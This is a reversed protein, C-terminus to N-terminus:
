ISAYMKAEAITDSIDAAPAGGAKRAREAAEIAIRTSADDKGLAEQRGMVVAEYIPAAERCRHQAEICFALHFMTDLTYPDNHAYAESYGKWCYRYLTEADGFKAQQELCLALNYAADTVWSAEAVPDRLRREYVDRFIAEAEAARDSSQYLEGLKGKISLAEESDQGFKKESAHLSQVLIQQAKTINGRQALFLAFNSALELTESADHGVAEKHQQLANEYAAQAADGRDEAAALVSALMVSARLTDPDSRGLLQQRGQLLERALAEMEFIDGHEELIDLLRETCDLTGRHVPGFVAKCQTRAERMAEEAKQSDGDNMLFLALNFISDLTRPDRNGLKHRRGEAARTYLALAEKRNGTNDEHVALNHVASLTDEHDCGVLAEYGALVRRLLEGTQEPDSGELTSALENCAVLAEKSDPGHTAEILQLTQRGKNAAAQRQAMEQLQNQFHAMNGGGPLSTDRMPTHMGSPTAWGSSERSNRRSTRRSNRLSSAGSSKWASRARMPTGGRESFPVKMNSNGGRNPTCSGSGDVSPLGSSMEFNSVADFSGQLPKSPTGMSMHQPSALRINELEAEESRKRQALRIKEAEMETLTLRLGNVESQASRLAHQLRASEMKAAEVEHSRQMCEARLRSLQDKSSQVQQRAVELEMELRAQEEKTAMLESALRTSDSGSSASTSPDQISNPAQPMVVGPKVEALRESSAENGM